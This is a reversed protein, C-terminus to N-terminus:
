LVFPEASPDTASMPRGAAAWAFMGGDLNLAQVGNQVLFQTAQASRGGVRCVVVVDRDTPLESWRQPITMMPMHVAGAIHGAVWEDSERVDLVFADAAVDHAQVTPLPQRGFM